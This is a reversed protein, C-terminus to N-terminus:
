KERVLRFLYRTRTSPTCTFLTMDWPNSEEQALAYEVETPDVVETSYLTYHFENGEMDTFIFPSGVPLTNINRFFRRYAHGGIVMNDQYVSGSYRCPSKEFRESDWTENVPLTLGLGPIELIGIYYEGNILSVPMEKEPYIKYLEDAIEESEAAEGTQEETEKKALAPVEKKMQEITNEAYAGAKQDEVTNYVVLGVASLILLIGIVCFLRGIFKRM